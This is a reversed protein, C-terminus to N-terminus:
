KLRYLEETLTKDCFGLYNLASKRQELASRIDGTYLVGADLVLNEYCPFSRVWRSKEWARIREALKVAEILKPSDEEWGEYFSLM